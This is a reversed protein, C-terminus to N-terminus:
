GMMPTMGALQPNTQEKEPKNTVTCSSTLILSAVSSANQLALRTVKVPDIIGSEVMNEFEGTLANFGVGKASNQVKDVVVDGSLGCNEAITRTPSVIADLVINYGRMFDNDGKIVHEDKLEKSIQCLATGGGPIIGEEIASRTANLADEIRYKKEKLATESVDGVKIVAVGGALKAVREQLKEKTYDSAEEIDKKIAEVREEIEEKDGGGGIITTKDKTIRISSCTGLQMTNTNELKLGVSESILEGGTLIAIDELMAKRNDGFSPAKVACVKLVGRLSNVILATLADGEISEGIIVLPRGERSVCELLSVIAELNTIVKDTLLIYPNEYEVVLNTKDTSFYPSLYGNDFSMGETFEMYTKGTKSEATTVVGASGATSVADAILKGLETDNNASISAVQAIQEETTVEETIGKLRAVVDNVAEDIGNRLKIPNVGSDTAKLGETLIGLAIVSASTTGDGADNDTASSISKILQAGVNEVPDELTISKAVTVGDKTATPTGYGNDILVCRGSPGLTSSISDVTTKVGKYLRKRMEDNFTIEKAM